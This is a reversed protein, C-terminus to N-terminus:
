LSLSHRKPVAREKRLGAFTLVDCNVTTQARLAKRLADDDVARLDVAGSILTASWEGVPQFFWDATSYDALVGARRYHELTVLSAARRTGENAHSTFRERATTKGWSMWMFLLATHILYLRGRREIPTRADAGFTAVGEQYYHYAEDPLRRLWDRPTDRRSPAHRDVLKAFEAAYIDLERTTNTPLAEARVTRPIPM